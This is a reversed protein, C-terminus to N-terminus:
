VFRIRMYNTQSFYNKAIISKNDGCFEHTPVGTKEPRLTYIKLVANGCGIEILIVDQGYFMIEIM